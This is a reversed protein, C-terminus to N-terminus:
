AALAEASDDLTRYGGEVEAHCNACLLVCKAAEAQLEAFSRTVGERSISFEKKTPDLHHFQLAGPFDDYGCLMCSGGAAEVLRIKARRRWASVREARCKVCRHYGRNELIFRTRGHRSCELEVYRFGQERARRAKARRETAPLPWLGYKKLWYRVTSKSREVGRAIESWTMGNAVMERLAAESLGGKGAYKDRHLAKLGHKKLHYGITSPHRGVREGIQELSLGEALYRELDEKRM